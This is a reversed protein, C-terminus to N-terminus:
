CRLTSVSVLLSPEYMIHPKDRPPCIVAFTPMAPFLVRSSFSTTGALITSSCSKWNPARYFEFWLLSRDLQRCRKASLLCRVAPLKATQPEIQELGWDSSDGGGRGDTDGSAKAGPNPSRSGEAGRFRTARKAGGGARRSRYLVKGRRRLFVRRPRRAQALSVRGRGSRAARGLREGQLADPQVM